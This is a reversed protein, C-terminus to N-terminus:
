ARTLLDSGFTSALSWVCVRLNPAPHRHSWSQLRTIGDEDGPEEIKEVEREPSIDDKESIRLVFTVRLPLVPPDDAPAPGLGIEASTGSATTQSLLGAARLLGAAAPVREAPATGPRGRRQPPDAIRPTAGPAPLYEGLRRSPVCPPIAMRIRSAM